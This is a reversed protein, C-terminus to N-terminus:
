FNKRPFFDCFLAFINLFRAFQFNMNEATKQHDFFQSFGQSFWCIKWTWFINLFMLLFFTKTFCSSLFQAFSYFSFNISFFIERFNGVMLFTHAHSYHRILKRGSSSLSHHWSCIARFATSCMSWSRFPSAETSSQLSSWREHRWGECSAQRILFIQSESPHTSTSQWKDRTYNTFTSKSRFKRSM